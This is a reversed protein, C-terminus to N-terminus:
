RMEAREVGSVAPVGMGVGNGYRDAFGPALRRGNPDHLWLRLLHRRRDPEPHDEYATRSHLVTHNCCFQMDGPALTMDLRIDERAATANLFEMAATELPTFTLGAKRSAQIISTYVYRISLRADYWSYVPVRHPTIPAVGAREEGRLDYHFGRYLPPLYEPHRALLENHLTVASAIRSVGGSRAQRFCLLGVVDCNDNHFFLEANTQYGRVDKAMYQMGDVARVHGLLDGRANQSIPDGFRRGIAWFIRAVDDDGYRGLPLGRVLCFGRGDALEDRIAALDHEISPLPFDQARMATLPLDRAAPAALARDIDALAAAPLRYVWDSRAALDAGRWASRDAIPHALMPAVVDNM